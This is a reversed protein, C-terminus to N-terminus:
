AARRSRRPKGFRKGPVGTYQDVSRRGDSAEVTVVYHPGAVPDTGFRATLVCIDAALLGHRRALEPLLESFRKIANALEGSIPSGTATGAVFDVIIHGKPSAAAEGFVDVGYAGIMLCLGSALSDAVNHGFSTLEGFKM